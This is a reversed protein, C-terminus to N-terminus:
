QSLERRRKLARRALWTQYKREAIAQAAKSLVQRALWHNPCDPCELESGAIWDTVDPECPAERDKSASVLWDELQRSLADHNTYRRAIRRLNRKWSLGAPDFDLPLDQAEIQSALRRVKEVIDLPCDLDRMM